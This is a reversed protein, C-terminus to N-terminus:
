FLFIGRRALLEKDKDRILPSIIKRYTEFTDLVKTMNYDLWASNMLKKLDLTIDDNFRSFLEDENIDIYDISYSKCISVFGLYNFLMGIITRATEMNTPVSMKNIYEIFLSKRDKIYDTVTNFDACKNNMSFHFSDLNISNAGVLDLLQIQAAHYESYGHLLFNSRRNKGEYYEDDLIHTFEHFMTSRSLEINDPIILVQEMGDFDYYAQAKVITKQSDRHIKEIRYEPFSDIEMFKCYEQEFDYIRKELTTENNM